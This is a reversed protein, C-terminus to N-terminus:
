AGAVSALGPLVEPRPGFSIEPFSARSGSLRSWLSQVAGDIIHQCAALEQQRQRVNQRAIGQLDDINYLYVNDLLQVDPDVNRPVSIDVLFLPRGRRAPLLAELQTRGLLVHPCGTCTIVIDTEIVTALYDEFRVARGDVAAALAQAREFSRNSVLVSQPSRKSLHRICAEGMQGAGIILVTQMPLAAGFIKEAVEVAASGVSTAGQGIKTATRIQKATQLAKQFVQNLIRGTFGGARAQEYAQKVQGTIETEGLVMSDLGATVKFLHKAADM